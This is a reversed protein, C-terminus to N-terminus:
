LSAINFDYLRGDISQFRSAVMLNKACNVRDKDEAALLQTSPTARRDIQPNSLM